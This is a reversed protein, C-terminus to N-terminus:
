SLGCSRSARGIRARVLATDERASDPPLPWRLLSPRLAPRVQYVSAMLLRDARQSGSRARRRNDARRHLHPRQRNPLASRGRRRQGLGRSVKWVPLDAIGSRARPHDAEGELIMPLPIELRQFDFLLRPSRRSAARPGQPRRLRGRSADRLGRATGAEPDMAPSCRRRFHPM